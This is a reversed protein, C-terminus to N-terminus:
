VSARPKKVLSCMGAPSASTCDALWSVSYQATREPHYAQHICRKAIAANSTLQPLTLEILPSLIKLSRKEAKTATTRTASLTAPEANANSQM